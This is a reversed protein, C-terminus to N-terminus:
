VFISIIGDPNSTDRQRVLDAAGGLPRWNDDWVKTLHCLHYNIHYNSLKLSLYRSGISDLTVESPVPFYLHFNAPFNWPLPGCRGKGSAATDREGGEGTGSGDM